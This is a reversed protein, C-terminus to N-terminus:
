TAPDNEAMRPMARLRTATTSPASSSPLRGAVSTLASIRLM